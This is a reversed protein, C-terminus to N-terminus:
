RPIWVLAVREVALDAKRPRLAKAELTFSAPDVAARVSAAETELERTLDDLARREVEVDASARGVDEGERAARGAGRVATTARSVTGASAVRRGFVAGLVAAGISIATDLKRQGYQSQERALREEARRLRERLRVLQPGRRQELEALREDRRERALQALRVRFEGEPEDLRSSLDLERSRLVSRTRERYLKAALARGFREYSAPKAAAAPLDAFRADGAPARALEGPAGTRVTGTLWPDAAGDAALPAVVHVREWEDLGDDASVWHLMAEGLLSPEYLSGPAAGGLFYEPVDPPLVPREGGAAAAAPAASAATPRPTPAPPESAARTATLGRIQERTLPGRLYSLAWRTQFLVPESEHVNRMLFVRSALGGLTHATAARDFPAASAASALGDLVRERDRETQLRGILWTGANGLGKYDLDVPNQTALVVGLGFSRAQKLLTLMPPKSPPNATPPFYGLIEDMYLLARLSTTGPQTRMWAVVENLLLTVFFMREADGLHAISLVAIRPRGESTWLLSPVSPPEGSTWAAFSPSAVLNNV